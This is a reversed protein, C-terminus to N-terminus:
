GTMKNFEHLSSLVLLAFYVLYEACSLALISKEKTILETLVPCCYSKSVMKQM